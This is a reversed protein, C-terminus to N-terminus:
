IRPKTTHTSWTNWRGPTSHLFRIAGPPSKDSTRRKSRDIVEEVRDASIDIESRAADSAMGAEVGDPHTIVTQLWRQIQALQRVDQRNGTM